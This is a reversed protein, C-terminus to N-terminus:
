ARASADNSIVADVGWRELRERRRRRDVTWASVLVGREHWQQVAHPSLLRHRLNVFAPVVADVLDPPIPARRDWSLMRPAAPAQERLWALTRPDGCFWVADRPGVGVGAPTGEGAVAVLAARAAAESGVDLVLPVAGAVAALAEALTPVGPARRRLDDLTLEGVRSRDRWLRRLSEDHLLVAAGDCTVRVDVEIADAGAAVAARVAPLTNERYRRPDGRHAISWPRHLPGGFREALHERWQRASAPATV